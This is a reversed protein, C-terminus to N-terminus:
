DDHNEDELIMKAGCNPFYVTKHKGAVKHCESCVVKCYTYADPPPPVIWRGRRVPEVDATPLCIIEDAMSEYAEAYLAGEGGEEDFATSCENAATRMYEVVAERSIYDAM